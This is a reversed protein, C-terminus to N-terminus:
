FTEAICNTIKAATEPDGHQYRIDILRTEKYYGRSERVPEVQLGGQLTGVYGALKKAEVLDESSTPPGVTATLPLEKVDNPANQKESGGFGVMGAITRWTSRQSSQPHM